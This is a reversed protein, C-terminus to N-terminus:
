DNKLRVFSDFEMAEELTAFKAFYYSDGLDDRLVEPYVGYMCINNRYKNLIEEESHVYQLRFRRSSVIAYFKEKTLDVTNTDIACSDAFIDYCSVSNAFNILDPTYGGPARMNAELAVLSGKPGFKKSDELTRFFEIHFFRNQVNFEKVVREGLEKLDDPVKPLCYYFEDLNGEAVEAISPPFVESDDFLVDAKSNTIGDYSVITGHIFEEVIYEVNQKSELFKQIDEENELKFTNQSGMGNNPKAFLPYGVEKAFDIVRQKDEISNVLIWSAVKAGAKLFYEKEQSKLKYKKIEDFRIGNKIDFDQRLMADKELWYENMSELFDIEGYKDKFYQVARKENEYDDMNWCCYYETLSYKCEEPIENYPADGIGLVNFGKNKLALCWKWYSNPFHPSIFIFNKM